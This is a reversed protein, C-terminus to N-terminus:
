PEGGGTKLEFILDGLLQGVSPFSPVSGWTCLSLQSQLVRELLQSPALFSPM